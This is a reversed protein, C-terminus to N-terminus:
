RGDPSILVSDTRGHHGNIWANIQEPRARMEDFQAQAFQATLPEYTVDPKDVIAGLEILGLAMRFVLYESTAFGAKLCLAILGRKDSGYLLYRIRKLDLETTAALSFEVLDVNRDRLFGIIDSPTLHGAEYRNRLSQLTQNLRRSGRPPQHRASASIQGLIQTAEDKTMTQTAIADWKLEEGLATVHKQTFEFPLNSRQKLHESIKPNSQGWEFIWDLTAQSLAAQDNDILRSIVKTTGKHEILLETVAESLPQRCAIVLAYAEPMDKIIEALDTDSLALGAELIPTAVDLDDRALLVAVDSTLHRSSGIEEAFRQRVKKSADRSFLQLLDDTLKRSKGRNLRNYQRAFKVAIDARVEESGDAKLAEIDDLSLGTAMEIEAGDLPGSMIAPMVHERREAVGSMSDVLSPDSAGM